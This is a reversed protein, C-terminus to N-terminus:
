GKFGHLSLRMAQGTLSTDLIADASQKAQKAGIFHDGPKLTQREFPDVQVAVARHLDGGAGEHALVGPLHERIRHPEARQIL